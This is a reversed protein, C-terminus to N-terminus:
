RELLDGASGLSPSEMLKHCGQNCSREMWALCKQRVFAIVCGSFETKAHSGKQPVEPSLPPPLSLLIRCDFRCLAHSRCVVLDSINYLTQGWHKIYGAQWGVGVSSDVAASENCVALEGM